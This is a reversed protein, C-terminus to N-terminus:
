TWTNTQQQLNTKKDPMCAWDKTAGMIKAPINAHEFEIAFRTVKDKENYNDITSNKNKNSENKNNKNTNTNNKNTNNENDMIIVIDNVHLIEQCCEEYQVVKAQVTELPEKLLMKKLRKWKHNKAQIYKDINLWQSDRRFMTSSPGINLLAQVDYKLKNKNSININSNSNSNGNGDDNDTTATTAAAAIEDKRWGPIDCGDILPPDYDSDSHDSEQSSCTCSKKEDMDMNKNDSNTTKTNSSDDYYLLHPREAAKIEFIEYREDASLFLDNIHIRTKNNNGDKNDLSSDMTGTHIHSVNAEKEEKKESDYKNYLKYTCNYTSPLPISM